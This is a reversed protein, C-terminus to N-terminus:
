LGNFSQLKMKIEYKKMREEHDLQLKMRAKEMRELKALEFKKLEFDHDIERQKIKLETGEREQQWEFKKQELRLKEHEVELKKTEYALSRIYINKDIVQALSSHAKPSTAASSVESERHSLSNDTLGFSSESHIHAQEGSRLIHMNPMSFGRYTAADSDDPSLPNENFEENSSYETRRMEEESTNDSTNSRNRFKVVNIVKEESDSGYIKEIIDYLPCAQNRYGALFCLLCMM